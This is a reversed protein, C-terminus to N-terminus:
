RKGQLTDDGAGCYTIRQKPVRFVFVGEEFSPIVHLNGIKFPQKFQNHRLDTELQTKFEDYTPEYLFNVLIAIALLFLILIITKM